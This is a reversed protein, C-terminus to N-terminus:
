QPTWQSIETVNDGDYTFTQVYTVDQYTVTITSVKAGDYGFTQVLNGVPLQVSPKSASVYKTQVIDSM